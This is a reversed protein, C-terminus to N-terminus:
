LAESVPARSAPSDCVSAATKRAALAAEDTPAHFEATALIHTVLALATAPLTARNASLYWDRPLPTGPLHVEFLRGEALERSVADRSLLTVGLGAAVSERIAVNSGLTVTRPRNTLELSELFEVTAQRTGSGEERILWTQASAWSLLERDNSAALSPESAVVVLEHPRIGLILHDGAPPRGGLVLDVEHRGLMPRIRESNGVQLQIGVQPNKHRFGALLQPLIQEGPTTLAAIRLIGHGPSAEAAAATNAEDLLGLLRHVYDAYVVGADTLRLGRGDRAVLQVGLSRQLAALSASVASQTVFLRKAAANVSGCEVVLLFTRLQTLTM